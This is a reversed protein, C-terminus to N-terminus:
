QLKALGARALAVVKERRELDSGDGAGGIYITLAQTGKRVYVRDGWFYAADGFDPITELTEGTESLFARAEEFDSADTPWLAITVSETATPFRCSTGIEATDPRPPRVRQGTIRAVEDVSLLTCADVAQATAPLACLGAIITASVVLGSGLLVQQWFSRNTAM